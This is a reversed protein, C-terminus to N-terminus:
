NMKYERPWETIKNYHLILSKDEEAWKEKFCKHDLSCVLKALPCLIGCHYKTLGGFIQHIMQPQENSILVSCWTVHNKWWTNKEMGFPKSTIWDLELAMDMGLLCFWLSQQLKRRSRYQCWSPSSICCQPIQNALWNREIALWIHLM